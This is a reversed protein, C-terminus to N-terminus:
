RYSEFALANSDGRSADGAQASGPVTVGRAQSIAKDAQPEKAGGGPTSDRRTMYLETGVQSSSELSPGGGKRMGQGALRFLPLKGNRQKSEQYRGNATNASFFNNNSTITAQVIARSAPSTEPRM